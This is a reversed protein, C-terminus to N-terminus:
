KRMETNSNLYPMVPVSHSGKWSASKGNSVWVSVIVSELDTPLPYVHRKALKPDRKMEAQREGGKAAGNRLLGYLKYRTIVITAVEFRGPSYSGVRSSERFGTTKDHRLYNVRFNAWRCREAWCGAFFARPQFRYYVDVYKGYKFGHKGTAHEM